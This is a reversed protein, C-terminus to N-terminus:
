KSLTVRHEFPLEFGNKGLTDKIDERLVWFVEWYNEVTTYPLAIM